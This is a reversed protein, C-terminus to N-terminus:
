APPCISARVRALQAGGGSHPDQALQGREARRRVRGRRGSRHWCPSELWDGSDRGLRGRRVAAPVDGNKAYRTFAVHEGFVAVGYADPQGAAIVQSKAESASVTHVASDAGFFARSGHATLCLVTSQTSAVLVSSGGAAEVRFVDRM